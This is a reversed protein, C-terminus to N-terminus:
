GGIQTKFVEVIEPDNLKDLDFRIRISKFCRREKLETKFNARLTTTVQWRRYWPRNNQKGQQHQIHLM